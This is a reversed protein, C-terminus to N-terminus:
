RTTTFALQAHPVETPAPTVRRIKLQRIGGPTSWSVIQGERCGILAIGIPALISIRQAEVDARDPFTISFTEIEGTGLDEFEVRSEMTVVDLPISERDIIAARDLERRLNQLSATANSHLAAAILLRLKSNDERTIYIPNYNM